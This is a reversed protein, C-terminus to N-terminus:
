KFVETAEEANIAGELCKKIVRKYWWFFEFGLGQYAKHLVSSLYSDGSTHSAAQSVARVCGNSM